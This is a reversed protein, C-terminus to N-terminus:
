REARAAMWINGTLEGLNFVLRDRAVSVGLLGRPVNAISRWTSHFHQVPFAAGRPRKSEPELRQAWLCMFGDRPSTFYLLGGDPSLTPKDDSLGGDTLPIWDTEPIASPGTTLRAAYLRRLEPGSQALFTIWEGDPSFRAVYLSHTPHALIDTSQGSAVDLLAVRRPENRLHLMRGGDRSWDTFSVACQDCARQPAGGGAGVVFIDHGDGRDRGLYAVRSGDPAPMPQYETEPDNTVAAATGTELDKLWVNGSGAEISVYALTKGDAALRPQVHQGATETIRQIEGRVTGENAAVPLSWVDIKSSQSAFILQGGPALSPQIEAGTGFTVQRPADLARGDATVPIEWINRSDGRRASFLVRGPVWADPAAAGLGHSRLRTVSGTAEADGDHLPTTWWELSDEHLHEGGHRDGGGDRVGLFLIREGGPSWIPLRTARFEPRLRRPTGGSAPVVYLATTGAVHDGGLGTGGVFTAAFGSTGTWYAITQGDPSFRPRRGGPALLKEPGGLASVVYIGGGDRESRFAIRTGDPSFDPERDEAEHSTLRLAAGGSLQQVWIDLNGEDARDSAYALLTGEASVAPDAALRTDSTLRTLVPGAGAPPAGSRGRTWGAAIVLAVLLVIAAAGVWRPVRIAGRSMSAAPRRGPDDVPALFRYGRRPITEIFRPNDASDGLADRLRKVAANLSHEFDVFTDAPWLQARLEERTVVEGPRRLLLLLVKLPQEQLRTKVGQRRLEGAAVDVEFVGFRLVPRASTDVRDRM